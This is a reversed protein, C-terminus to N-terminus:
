KYKSIMATVAEDCASAAADGGSNAVALYARNTKPAIWIVCYWMSNSGGHSLTKGKAWPRDAVMWGCAYDDLMPKQLREFTEKKLFTSEGRAGKMSLAAFKAWDRLSMHACGAAAITLPNDFQVANLVGFAMRHGWPQNTKGITGPIGWGASKMGLPDFIIEQMLTEYSKGTKKEAMMAAIMYGENSYNYKKGPADVPKLSLMHIALTERQQPMPEKSNFLAVWAEDSVVAAQVGGCHHLLQELTATEYAADIKGDWEPFTEGITQEWRLQGDDILKALMTATMAKTDSGLHWQDDLTVAADSLNSRVGDVGIAKVVDGEMYLVGLAPAGAKKRIPALLASIDEAGQLSATTQGDTRAVPIEAHSFSIITVSLLASILRSFHKM